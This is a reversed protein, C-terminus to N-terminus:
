TLCDFYNSIEYLQGLINTSLKTIIKFNVKTQIITHKSPLTSNKYNKKKNAQSNILKKLNYKKLKILKRPSRVMKLMVM